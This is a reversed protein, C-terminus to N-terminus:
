TLATVGDNPGIEELIKGDKVKLIPHGHPADGASHQRVSMPEGAIALGRRCFRVVRALGTATCQCRRMLQGEVM